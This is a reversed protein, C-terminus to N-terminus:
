FVERTNMALYLDSLRDGTKRTVGGLSTVWVIHIQIGAM